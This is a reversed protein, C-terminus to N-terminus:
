PPRGSPKPGRGTSRAVRERVWEDVKMDLVPVADGDIAIGHRTTVVEAEPV